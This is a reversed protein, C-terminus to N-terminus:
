ARKAEQRIIRCCTGSMRARSASDSIFACPAMTATSSICGSPRSEQGRLDDLVVTLLTSGLGARRFDRAIWLYELYCEETPMTKEGTVGARAVFTM